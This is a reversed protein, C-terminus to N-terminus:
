WKKLKYIIKCSRRSIYSLINYDYTKVHCGLMTVVAQRNHFSLDQCDQPFQWIEGYKSITVSIQYRATSQQLALTLTSEFKKVTYYLWRFLSALSKLTPTLYNIVFLCRKNEKWLRFIGQLIFAMVRRVSKVM